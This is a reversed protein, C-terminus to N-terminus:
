LAYIKYSVFPISDNELSYQLCEDCKAVEKLSSSSAHNISSHCAGIKNIWNRERERRRGAEGMECLYIVRSMCTVRTLLVLFNLNQQKNFLHYLIM